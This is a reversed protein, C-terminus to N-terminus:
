FTKKKKLDLRVLNKSEDNEWHKIKKKKEEMKASGGKKKKQRRALSEFLGNKEEEASSVSSRKHPSFFFWRRFLVCVCKKCVYIYMHIYFFGALQEEWFRSVNVSDM